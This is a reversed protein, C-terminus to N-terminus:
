IQSSVNLPTLSPNAHILVGMGIVVLGLTKTVARKRSLMSVALVKKLAVSNKVVVRKKVRAATKGMVAFATKRAVTFVVYNQTDMLAVDKPYVCLITPLVANVKQIEQHVAYEMEQVTTLLAAGLDVCKPM